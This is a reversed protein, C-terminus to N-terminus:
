RRPPSGVRGRQASLSSNNWSADGERGPWDGAENQSVPDGDALVVEEGSDWVALWLGKCAAASAPRRTHPKWTSPSLPPAWCPSPFCRCRRAWRWPVLWVDTRNAEQERTPRYAAAYLFVEPAMAFAAPAQLLAILENHLNSRYSTVIDALLVGIGRALYAATKAAFVRRAEPRDLNAPSALEVVGVLRAGDRTDLVQVEISDPYVAPMSLTAAPPAWTQVTIGGAAGNPIEAAATQEFEAVDAEISTGLHTQIAAFYRPPLLGNLWEGIAAAWFAHFSEDPHLPFLPPHFHDLLPM